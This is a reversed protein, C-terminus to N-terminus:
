KGRKEKKDKTTFYVSGKNEDITYELNFLKSFDDLSIGAYDIGRVNKDERM